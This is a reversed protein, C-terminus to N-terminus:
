SLLWDLIPGSNWYCFLHCCLLMWIFSRPCIECFKVHSLCDQCLHLWYNIITNHHWCLVNGWQPWRLITAMIFIQLALEIVTNQRGISSINTTTFINKILLLQSHVSERSHLILKQSTNRWVAIQLLIYQNFLFVLKIALIVSRKLLLSVAFPFLFDTM